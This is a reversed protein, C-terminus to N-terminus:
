LHGSSSQLDSPCANSVKLILVAQSNAAVASFADALVSFVEPLEGVVRTSMRGPKVELSSNDMDGIFKEIPLAIKDTRLPYLSVEAQVIM